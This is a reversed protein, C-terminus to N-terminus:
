GRVLKDLLVAEYHKHESPAEYAIAYAEASSVHRGSFSSRLQTARVKLDLREEEIRLPLLCPYPYSISPSEVFSALRKHTQMGSMAALLDPLFAYASLVSKFFVDPFVLTPVQSLLGIGLHKCPYLGLKWALPVFQAPPSEFLQRLQAYRGPVGDSAVLVLDCELALTSLQAVNSLYHITCDVDYFISAFGRLFASVTRCAPTTDFVALCLQPKRIVRVEDIGFWALQALHRHDLLVKNEVVPDGAAYESGTRVVSPRKGTTGEAFSDFPGAADYDEIPVVAMAWTPVPEGTRLELRRRPDRLDDVAVGDKMSLDLSPFPHPALVKSSTVRRAAETTPISESSLPCPLRELLLGLAVDRTPKYLTM